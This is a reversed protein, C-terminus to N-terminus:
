QLSQVDARFDGRSTLLSGVSIAPWGPSLNRIQDVAVVFFFGVKNRSFIIKTILGGFHRLVVKSAGSVEM